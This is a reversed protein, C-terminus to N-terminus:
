FRENGYGGRVTIKRELSHYTAMFYGSSIRLKLRLASMPITIHLQVIVLCSESVEEQPIGLEHTLKRRVARKVGMHNAEELEEACHLPHSCCTNTWCNPFTVKASSRKQLLLENKDNFLFVSFARHLMGAEINVNLHCAKKTESGVVVDNEDVLICREEILYKEQTSDMNNLLINSNLSRLHFLRSIISNCRRACTMMM